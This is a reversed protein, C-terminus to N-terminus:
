KSEGKTQHKIKPSERFQELREQTTRVVLGEEELREWAARVAKAGGGKPVSAKVAAEFKGNAIATCDAAKGGTLEDVLVYAAPLIERKSTEVIKLGRGDSGVLQGGSAKVISRRFDKASEVMKDVLRIRDDLAIIEDPTPNVMLHEDDDLLRLATRAQAHAAPCESFRKCRWCLDDTPYYTGRERRAEFSEWWELVEERSWQWGEHTGTRAHIQVAYVSEIEPHKHLLIWAYALLQSRASLDLFGTKWDLIRVQSGVLSYLDPHGTLEGHALEDELIPDPFYQEFELWKRRIAFALKYLDSHQEQTFGFKLAVADVYEFMEPLLGAVYDTIWRFTVEHAATGVIAPGGAISVECSPKVCAQPCRDAIPMYSARIVM